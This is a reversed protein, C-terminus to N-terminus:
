PTFIGALHNEVAKVGIGLEDTRQRPRKGWASTSERSTASLRAILDTSLGVTFDHRHRAELALRGRGDPRSRHAVRADRDTRDREIARAVEDHEEFWVLMTGGYQRTFGPVQKDKHEGARRAVDNTVGTYLTGDACKLIYVTWAM